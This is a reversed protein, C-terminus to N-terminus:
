LIDRSGGVGSSGIVWYVGSWHGAWRRLEIVGYNWFSLTSGSAKLMLFCLTPEILIVGIGRAAGARIRGEPARHLVCGAEDGTGACPASLLAGCGARCHRCM